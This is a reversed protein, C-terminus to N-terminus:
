SVRNLMQPCSLAAAPHGPCEIGTSGPSVQWVVTCMVCVGSGWCVAGPPRSVGRWGPGDWLARQAAGGRCCACASLAFPSAVTSKPLHLLQASTRWWVRWSISLLLYTVVRSGRTGGDLSPKKKVHPTHPPWPCM